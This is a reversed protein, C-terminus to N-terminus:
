DDRKNGDLLAPVEQGRHPRPKSRPTSPRGHTPQQHARAPAGRSHSNGSSNADPLRNGDVEPRNPNNYM